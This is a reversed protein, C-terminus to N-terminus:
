QAPGVGINPSINNLQDVMPSTPPAGTPPSNVPTSPQGTTQTPSTYAQITEADAMGRAQGERVDVPIHKSVRVTESSKASKPPPTQTYQTVGNQDVWKYIAGSAIAMSSTFVAGLAFIILSRYSPM